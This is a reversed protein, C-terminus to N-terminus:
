DTDKRTLLFCGLAGAAGALTLWGRNQSAWLQWSFNSARSDFDGHAGYDREADVPQYLNDQRDPSM